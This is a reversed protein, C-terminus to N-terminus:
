LDTDTDTFTRRILDSFYLKPLYTIACPSYIGQRAKAADAETQKKVVVMTSNM